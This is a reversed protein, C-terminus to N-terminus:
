NFINTVTFRQGGKRVFYEQLWHQEDERIRFACHVNKEVVLENDCMDLLSQVSRVILTENTSALEAIRSETAVDDIKEM